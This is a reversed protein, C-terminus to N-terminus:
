AVGPDHRFGKDEVSVIAQRMTRGLGQFTDIVEPDPPSFIGILNGPDDYLYSNAEPGYQRKNELQPLNSAVAMMMGFVLSAIAITSLGFIVSLLRLKRIRPRPTRGDPGRRLRRKPPAFPIPAPPEPRPPSQVDDDSM